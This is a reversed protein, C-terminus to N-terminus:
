GPVCTRDEDSRLDSFGGAEEHAHREMQVASAPIVFNLILIERVQQEPPPAPALVNRPTASVAKAPSWRVDSSAVIAGIEAWNAATVM